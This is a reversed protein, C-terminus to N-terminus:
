RILPPNLCPTCLDGTASPPTRTRSPSPTERQQVGPVKIKKGALLPCVEGFFEEASPDWVSELGFMFECRTLSTKM